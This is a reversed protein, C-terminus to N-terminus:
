REGTKRTRDAKRTAKAVSEYLRREAVTRAESVQRALV